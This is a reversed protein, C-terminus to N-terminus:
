RLPEVNRREYLPVSPAGALARMREIALLRDVPTMIPALPILVDSGYSLHDFLYRESRAQIEPSRLDPPKVGFSEGVISRGDGNPGHCHHCFRRYVLDARQERLAPKMEALQLKAEEFGPAGNVPHTGHVPLPMPKEHPQVADTEWM